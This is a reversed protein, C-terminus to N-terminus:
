KKGKVTALRIRAANIQTQILVGESASANVLQLELVQITAQQQAIEARLAENRQYSQEFVKREVVTSGILGISRLGFGLGTVIVILAVFLPLIKWLTWKMDAHIENFEKRYDSM